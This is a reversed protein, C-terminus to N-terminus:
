LHVHTFSEQALLWKLHKLLMYVLTEPVMETGMMLSHIGRIDDQTVHVQGFVQGTTPHSFFLSMWGNRMYERCRVETNRRSLRVYVQGCQCQIQYIGHVKVDPGDKTFRLM